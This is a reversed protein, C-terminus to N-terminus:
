TVELLDPEEVFISDTDLCGLSDVVTVFYFGGDLNSFINGSTFYTNGGDNSFLYPTAGGTASPTIVGDDDGFCTVNSITTLLDPNEGALIEATDANAVCGNADSVVVSYLGPLLFNITPTTAGNSWLYSYGPTAGSAIAEIEGSALTQNGSCNSNNM